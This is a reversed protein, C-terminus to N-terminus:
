PLADFTMERALIYLVFLNESVLSKKGSILVALSHVHPLLIFSPSPSQQFQRRNSVSDNSGAMDICSVSVCLELVCLWM